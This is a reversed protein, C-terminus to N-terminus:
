HRCERFVRTTKGAIKKYGQELDFIELIAESLMKASSKVENDDCWEQFPRTLEVVPVGEIMDKDYDELFNLAPNNELHYDENFDAVAQCTTFANNEYLRIYGDIMIKVWYELAEPTTINSIFHPDKKDVKSYMPLWMVRRRFSEGKEWSKLKHNSTFILSSTIIVDTPNEYLKKVTIMDCTTLNKLVKMDKNNIAQDQLDDGLNALKGRMNALYRDDTLQQISLGSVNKNDLIKTIIQLLTGKGNGGGGIFIFFKALSRIMDPDTVLCFGLIEGILDRYKKDSNTLHDLYDDVIKVPKCDSHYPIDIIYPTFDSPIIEYFAGDYVYGNQFRIKFVKDIPILNSKYEMQKIVEDVYRTPKDECHSYVIRKINDSKVFRDDQKMYYEGAYETYEYQTRIWDALTNQEVDDSDLSPLDRGLTELEKQDLPVEFIHENIFELITRWNRMSSIKGRHKFLMDNRGDGEGLGLMSEYGAKCLLENPLNERVNMNEVVRARGNRKVTCAYTNQCHKYEIDFGLTCTGQKRRFAEPKKFYFHVGRETWVTQTRINFQKIIEKITEKNLNDIDVVLDNDTLIIGCDEFANIDESIAAGKEAHKSGQKFEVYM